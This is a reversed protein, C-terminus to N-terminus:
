FKRELFKKSNEKWFNLCSFDKRFFVQPENIYQDVEDQSNAVMQSIAGTFHRELLSFNKTITKNITVEKSLQKLPVSSQTQTQSTTKYQEYITRFVTKAEIKIKDDLLCLKLRPDLIMCIMSVKKFYPFYEELKNKLLKIGEHLFSIENKDLNSKIHATLNQFIFYWQSAPLYDSGSLDKTAQKFPELIDTILQIKPLFTIKTFFNNKSWRNM